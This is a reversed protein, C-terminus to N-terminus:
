DQKIHELRITLEPPLPGGNDLYRSPPAPEVYHDTAGGTVMDLERMGLESRDFKVNKSEESM